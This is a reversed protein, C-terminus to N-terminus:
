HHVGDSPVTWEETADTITVQGELHTPMNQTACPKPSPEDVKDMATFTIGDM